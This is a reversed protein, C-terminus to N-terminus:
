IRSPRLRGFVRRLLLPRLAVWAEMVSSRATSAVEPPAYAAVVFGGALAGVSEAAEPFTLELRRGLELPTEGPRREAGALSALVLMRKWVSMVTRPRLYRSAAVLFLLFLVVLFAVIRTVAAGSISAVSIGGGPGGANPDTAEPRGGKPTAVVGPIGATISSPDCAEDRLCPNTGTQGRAITSYQNLDDATPEFPIWGYKPFYVEPWTHADEGRVVNSQISAEYNGPGFGNVLRSPIGLSRLMDGMATAFFECYGRKSTFLFYDIPDRGPPTKADLTYVFNHVDRLYAEIATAQDYPNTAHAATVIQVALSHIKSIVDPSRYGNVPLIAFQNLWDPYATGASELDTQTATSFDATVAYNGASSAPQVTSLRDISQLSDSQPGPVLPVQTAITTRDIKYLQGPYFLVDAFGVPPARMTVDITAGALKEYNESFDPFQNKPIIQQYGNQPPYRWEGGLTLTADVGRFYKPGAYDGVVTYIFVIDRTRQLSGNLKVDESFGTVGHGGGTRFVGPNSLRQQLQAWSTFVGSELDLTRDGTSLPPLMIGLVILAAMAVLGSEWFDWRADGTLKVRARMANAISGTYNTWLLLALTLVLMALVYGNQDTPINLINTAFAAAGPILGLMPKRWRLVCWSLWAGTIWMLLCILALYFSPDSTATGDQVRTWWVGILQPGIADGPHAHHLQPWAGIVAAAPALVTGIGLGILERIPLLALISMLVAAVIAIPTIVDIGDVWHVTATSKAVTLTILLVLVASWLRGGGLWERARDWRESQAIGADFGEPRGLERNHSVSRM